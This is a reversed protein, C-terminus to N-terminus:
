TTAVDNVFLRFSEEAFGLYTYDILVNFKNSPTWIVGSGLFYGSPLKTSWYLAHKNVKKGLIRNVAPRYHTCDGTDSQDCCSCVLTATGSISTVACFASRFEVFQKPRHSFTVMNKLAPM